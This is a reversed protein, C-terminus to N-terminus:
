VQRESPLALRIGTYYRVRGVAEEPRTKGLTPVATLLEKGFMQLTGVRDRGNEGCWLRWEHFLAEPTVTAGDEIRCRDNVFANIPSSLAELESIATAASRPQVFYGRQRLRDLGDLAWNLIGSLEAMLKDSLLLDERGYFSRQLTLVIFRSTFAGASDKVRPLENSLVVFRTPLRGTWDALYKRPISITDEGSVALLREAVVATDTRGGIRADAIIALPKDILTAMGFQTGLGALTPACVNSAGRLGRWVRGIVGKGARKPGVIMLMKQQKTSQTLSYGIFEQLTDISARDGLWLEQLFRLWAEPPPANDDFAFAVGAKAFLGPTAPLMTRTPLHLLGGTTPLVDLPDVDTAFEHLWAPPTFISPLHTEARLADIVNNVKSATPNFPRLAGNRTMTVADNLFAYVVPRIDAEPLDIYTSTDHDYRCFMGDHHRLTLWGNDRYSATLLAQASRVPAGVELVLEEGPLASRPATSLLAGLPGKGYKTANAIKEALESDSWCPSCKANWEQMLEFADDASLAFDRVLRCAAVYTAHDGGQGEVAGPVKSLYTRARAKSDLSPQLPSGPCVPESELKLAPAPTPPQIWAPDFVPLEEIAPWSGLREYEVGTHHMSTPAVVYGGDGRVDLALQGVKVNNSIWGGPHRYFRHTGRSTRTMMPTTPLNVDAWAEAAASDCDVVVIGSVKGTVIGINRRRGSAFWEILNADGPPAEQFAKWAAIPTKGIQDAKVTRSDSPHDLPLISLGRETVLWRAYELM